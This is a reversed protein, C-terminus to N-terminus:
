CTLQITITLCVIFFLYRLKKLLEADTFFASSGLTNRILHTLKPNCVLMWRRFTIGNTINIFKEPWLRYFGKFLNNKLIETHLAAVGNVKHGMVIALNAM